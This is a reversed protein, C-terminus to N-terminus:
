MNGVIADGFASCSLKTAGEMQRELDYTVKKQSITKELASIVLDAAEQWGLYELMMNGSLLLSSPNARDHGAHKPATGHTAEFLAVEDGINAGPALGLGGVQAACADSLYDGNLNSSALVHHEEPRLLLEQFMADAIRDKIVVKGKPAKGDHKEWVEKETIIFDAFKEKAIEYGWECFAGETFKMINGKHVLTVSECKHKVAHAVAMEVLRKSGFPSMPKIGIGSLERINAGMENVLFNRVKEAEPTGSKWEIGAYIDETNERFITVNLAGPNKVPSPVGSFHRVPRVCAYLDLVQRLTVNLSRIGGGIPTTLPGKIAVHHKKIADFTAQPLWEGCAKQAREGAFIEKWVIKKEGNYAKKVAADLVKLTVPTIDEGIGDGTIFPIIPNNPICLKGNNDKSILTGTSM